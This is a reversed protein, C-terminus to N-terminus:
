NWARVWRNSSSTGSCNRAWDHKALDVNLDLAATLGHDTGGSWPTPLPGTDIGALSLFNHDNRYITELTGLQLRLRGINQTEVDGLEGTAGVTNQGVELAFHDGRSLELGSHREFRSGSTPRGFM